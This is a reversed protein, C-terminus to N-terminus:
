ADDARDLQIAVIAQKRCGTDALADLQVVQGGDELLRDLAVVRRTFDSAAGLHAAQGPIWVVLALKSSCVIVADDAYVVHVSRLVCDAELLM